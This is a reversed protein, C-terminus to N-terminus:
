AAPAELKEIKFSKGERPLGSFIAMFSITENPQVVMDRPRKPPLAEEGTLFAPALQELEERTFVNGCLIVKEQIRNGAQDLIVVRLKVYKRTRKSRNTVNGKIVYIRHQGVMDEYGELGSLELDRERFGIVDEWLGSLRQGVKELTPAVADLLSVQAERNRWMLFAGAGLVVLLMLVLVTRFSSRRRMPRRRLGKSRLLDEFKKERVPPLSTREARNGSRDESKEEEKLFAEMSPPEVGGENGGQEGSPAVTVDFPESPPPLELDVDEPRGGETGPREPQEAGGLLSEEHAIEPERSEPSIEERTMFEEFSIGAPEESVPAKERPEVAEGAGLAEGLYPERQGFNEGASEDGPLEGKESGAGAEQERMFAEFSTETGEEGIRARKEEVGEALAEEMQQRHFREFDDFDSQLDEPVEPMVRFVHSCKACRVRVGKAPIRSDDVKFVTKCAECTVIM